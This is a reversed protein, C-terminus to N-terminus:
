RGYAPARARPAPRAAPRRARSRRARRARVWRSRASSFGGGPGSSRRAPGAPSASVIEAAPRAEALRHAEGAWLNFGEADGRERAARIPATL